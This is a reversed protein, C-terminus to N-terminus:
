AVGSRFKRMDRREGRQAGSRIADKAVKAASPEAAEWAGGAARSVTIILRDDFGSRELKRNREM